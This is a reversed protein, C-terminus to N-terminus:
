PSKRTQGWNLVGSGKYPLYVRSFPSRQHGNWTPYLDAVCMALINMHIRKTEKLLLANSRTRVDPYTEAM